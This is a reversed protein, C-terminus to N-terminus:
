SAFFNVKWRTFVAGLCAPISGPRSSFPRTFHTNVGAAKRSMGTAIEPNRWGSFTFIARFAVTPSKFRWTWLCSLAASSGQWNITRFSSTNDFEKGKLNTYLQKSFPQRFFHVRCDRFTNHTTKLESNKLSIEFFPLFNWPRINALALPFCCFYTRCSCHWSCTYQNYGMNGKPITAHVTKGVVKRSIATYFRTETSNIVIASKHVNPILM